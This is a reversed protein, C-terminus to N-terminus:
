GARRAVYGRAPEDDGTVLLDVAKKAQATEPYCYRREFGYQTLGIFLATTYLLKGLGVVTGDELERLSFYGQRELAQLEASSM